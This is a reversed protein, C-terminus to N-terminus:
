VHLDSIEKLHVSEKQNLEFNASKLSQLEKELKEISKTQEAIKADASM